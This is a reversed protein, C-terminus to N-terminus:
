RNIFKRADSANNVNRGWKKQYPRIAGAKILMSAIYQVKYLPVRLRNAILVNPKNDMRYHYVTVIQKPTVKNYKKKKTVLGCGTILVLTKTQVM